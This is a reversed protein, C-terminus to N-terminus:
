LAFHRLVNLARLTLWKSPEGKTEVDAITKGNLSNRTTWRMEEDAAGRVAAIAPEYEPRMTEGTVALATLAELVDSNYSLPYGFRLWGPKAGYTLPQHEALFRERLGKRRGAPTSWVLDQFERSEAPLCRFVQKERLADVCAQRLDDAAEPWSERPVEALFLLTKPTLMHCYGNLQYMRGQRCDVVGIERYVNVCYALAKAIREDRAFGMRALARAVNATLCAISSDKRGNCSWSGDPLQRSFAYDAACQVREDDGSAWLEGLFHIQWLNGGYKQYDRAPSTWTGDPRIAALIRVVPEYENRRAWLADLESSADEGLLLRRSLVSVAPNDSLALWDLTERPTPVVSPAAM